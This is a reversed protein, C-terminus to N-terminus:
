KESSMIRKRIEDHRRERIAAEIREQECCCKKLYCPANKDGTYYLCYICACDEVSYGTFRDQIRTYDSHERM